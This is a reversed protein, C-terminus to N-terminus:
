PRRRLSEALMDAIHNDRRFRWWSDGVADVEPQRQKVAQLVEKAEAKQRRALEVKAQEEPSREPQRRPRTWPWTINM